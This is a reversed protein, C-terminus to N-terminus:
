QVLIAKERLADPIFINFVKSSTENIVLLPDTTVFVPINQLFEGKHHRDLTTAVARGLGAYASVVGVLAGQDIFTKISGISKLGAARLQRGILAAQSVMFSDSPLYVADVEVSKDILKQLNKELLDLTPPSRLDVVEFQFEHAIDHLRKRNQMSNQERPNFLLGLRKFSILQRAAALQLKLPIRSTAGNINGGTARLDQVLGAGVPDTVINFLQPVKDGIVKKVRKSVTTGFSYVYDFTDLQPLLEQQLLQTLRKRDQQANLATYTVTYGLDHLGDKFGQEAETEGRWLVMAIRLTKTEARLVHLPVLVLQFMCAVILMVVLRKSM